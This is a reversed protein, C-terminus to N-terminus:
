FLAKGVISEKRVFDMQFGLSITVAFLIIFLAQSPPACMGMYIVCFTVVCFYKTPLSPIIALPFHLYNERM